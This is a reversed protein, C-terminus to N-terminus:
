CYMEKTINHYLETVPMSLIIQNNDICRYKYNGATQPSEVVFVCLAAQKTRRSRILM